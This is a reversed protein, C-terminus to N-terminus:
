ANRSAPLAPGGVTLWGPGHDHIRHDIRQRKRQRRVQGEVGDFAVGQALCTSDPRVSEIILVTSRLM